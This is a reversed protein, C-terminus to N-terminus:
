VWPSSHLQSCASLRYLSPYQSQLQVPFFAPGEPPSSGNNLAVSPSPCSGGISSRERSMSEPLLIGGLFEPPLCSGAGGNHAESTPMSWQSLRSCIGTVAGAMWPAHTPLACPGIVAAAAPLGVLRHRNSGWHVPATALLGVLRHRSSGQHVQLSHPSGFRQQQQEIVLDHRVRQLGTSQLM